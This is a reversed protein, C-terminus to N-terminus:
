ASLVPGPTTLSKGTSDFVHLRATDVELGVVTGAAAELTPDAEVIVPGAPTDLYVYSTNGLQELVSVTGPLHGQGVATIRVHEPRVGVEVAPGAPQGVVAVQLAQGGTLDIRLGSGDALATGTLFNMAPSGIFGAVFRNIPANYLTLPSGVQQIVGKDLVVIQDALTMAEVQDHTVYIMTTGLDQHLKALELRMQVRLLADLNSLPEDFLFVKPDRVLARGIAVRQRQGGSLQAPRRSLLQDLQLMKSVRAAQAKQMAKPLGALSMSFCINEEVTLHPYLAYSQFVMAVGRNAPAEHTVDRDGIRIAGSSTDELGAIMRLLTSKGCGSAGLLATFSGDPITLNLGKIVEVAGFRKVINQLDVGAM